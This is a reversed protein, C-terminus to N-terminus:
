IGTKRLGKPLHNKLVGNVAKALGLPHDGFGVACWGNPIDANLTEGSLYRECEEPTLPVFRRIEQRKVSMALAHAPKFIKGDFEGLEIGLRLARVGIAPMGAPVLYMRGDDLTTIEGKPMASFFDKAFAEFAKNAVANRRVPYPKAGRTEGGVKRLRACYHGEGKESDPYLKHEQELVFDTHRRLFAEVQWEDEEEAFTCTSYVIEGGGAVTEAACDLIEKQRAACLAVNNESWHPIAEPEKKFMGEGSCPADVLVLDFYDPFREALQAPSANTVACNKIGMREVNQSLIKARGADIENSILIGDGKMQAAVQTTKGGPAACLDLVREQKCAATLEGVCMASPEQLYYLGAFHERYSGAKEEEIYFGNEEWDTQLGLPFPAIELFDDLSIKLTNM